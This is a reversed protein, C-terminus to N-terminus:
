FKYNDNLVIKKNNNILLNLKMYKLQFINFTYMYILLFIIM